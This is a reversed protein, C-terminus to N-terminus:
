DRMRRACSKLRMKLVVVPSFTACTGNTASRMTTSARATDRPLGNAALRECFTEFTGPQPRGLVWARWNANTQNEPLAAWKPINFIIADIALGNAELTEILEDTRAFDWTDPGKGQIASMHALDARALKAGCAVMAAAAIRRDEPTFRELHWHVGLRFTGKPQRPTAEHCAMVAFRTDIRATSGDEATLEGGIRWVGKRAAGAIPIAVAQGGELVVDVPLEFTEGDFGKVNLAGQAAIREQAANRISLVPREGKGDRVIHLPNGTEVVVRLAEARTTRFVGRLSRLGIKWPADGKQTWHVGFSELQYQRASDLSTNFRMERALPVAFKRRVGDPFEVLTLEATAGDLGVSEAELILEEAGRFPKMGPYRSYNLVFGARSTGSVVLGDDRWEGRVGSRSRWADVGRRFAPIEEEHSITASTAKCVAAFVCVIAVAIRM